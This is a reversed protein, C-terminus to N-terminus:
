IPMSQGYRKVDSVDVKRAAENPKTWGPPPMKGAAACAGVTLNILM